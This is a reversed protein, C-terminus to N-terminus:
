RLHHQWAQRGLFTGFLSFLWIVFMSFLILPVLFVSWFVGIFVIHIVPLQYNTQSSPLFSNFVFISLANVVLPLLSIVFLIRSDYIKCGPDKDISTLLKVERYRQMAQKIGLLVTFTLYVILMHRLEFTFLRKGQPHQTTLAIFDAPLCDFSATWSQGQNMLGLNSKVQWNEPALVELDLGGFSKWTRAPALIYATQWYRATHYQSYYAGAEVEYTVEISQKGTQLPVTFQIWQHQTDTLSQSYLLQEEPVFGPTAAPPKWSEPMAEVQRTTYALVKGNLSCRIGQVANAGTIFTIPLDRPPLPHDIQYTATIIIWRGQELPRLDIRLSERVITIEKVGQVDVILQGGKWPGSLNGFCSSYPIPLIFLVLLVTNKMAGTYRGAETSRAFEFGETPAVVPRCTFRHGKISM